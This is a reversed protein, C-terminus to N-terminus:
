ELTSCCLEVLAMFGVATPQHLELQCPVVIVGHHEKSSVYMVQSSCHTGTAHEPPTLSVECLVVDQWGPFGTVQPCGKNELPCRGSLESFLSLSNLTQNSLGNVIFDSTVGFLLFGCQVPM